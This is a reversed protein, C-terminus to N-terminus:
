LVQTTVLEGANDFCYCVNTMEDFYYSDAEACVNINCINENEAMEKGVKYFFGFLSLLLVVFIILGITTIRWWANVKEM